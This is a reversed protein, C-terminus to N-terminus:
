DVLENKIMYEMANKSLNSKVVNKGIQNTYLGCCTYNLLSLSSIFHLVELPLKINYERCLDQINYLNNNDGYNSKLNKIPVNKTIDNQLFINILKILDGSHNMELYDLFYKKEQDTLEFVVGFDIISVHVEGEEEFFLFNGKHFNGHMINNSIM